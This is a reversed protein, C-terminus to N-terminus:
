AVACHRSIWLVCVVQDNRDPGCIRGRGRGEWRPTGWLDGLAGCHRMLEVGDQDQLATRQAVGGAGECAGVRQQHGDAEICSGRHLQKLADEQLLQGHKHGQQPHPSSFKRPCTSRGDVLSGTTPQQVANLLIIAQSSVGGQVGRSGTHLYAAAAGDVDGGGGTGHGGRTCLCAKCCFALWVNYNIM